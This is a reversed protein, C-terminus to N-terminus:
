VFWDGRQLRLLDTLREDRDEPLMIRLEAVLDGRRGEGDPLGRGSIRIKCDSGSWESITVAAAGDPAVIQRTTGFVAEDLSIPVEIHIDLGEARLGSSREFRLVVVADGRSGSADTTGRGALRIRTGEATGPEIRIRATDGDPMDVTHDAGQIVDGLPVSLELETESLADDGERGGILNFLPKLARDLLGRGRAPRTADNPSDTPVDDIGPANDVRERRAATEKPRFPGDRPTERFFAEGFIREAVGEPTKEPGPEVTQRTAAAGAFADSRRRSRSASHRRGYADIVGADYLRRKEEDSLLQYAASIEAFREQAAFDGPNKDPHFAMALRRFASKIDDKGADPQVGLVFYPNRM